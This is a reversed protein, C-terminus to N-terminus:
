EIVIVRTEPSLGAAGALPVVVTVIVTVGPAREFTNNVAGPPVGAAPTALPSKTNVRASTLSLGLAAAVFVVNESTVFTPVPVDVNLGTEGIVMVLPVAEVEKVNALVFLPKCEMVADRVPPSTNAVEDLEAFIVIIGPVALAVWDVREGALVVRIAFPIEDTSM